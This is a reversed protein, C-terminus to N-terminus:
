RRKLDQIEFDPGADEAEPKFRTRAGGIRVGSLRFLAFQTKVPKGDKFYERKSLNQGTFSDGDVTITVTESITIRGVQNSKLFTATNGEAAKVDISASAGNEPNSIIVQDGVRELMWINNSVPYTEPVNTQLLNGTVSWQGYMAPPLYLTKSVTATLPARMTFVPKAKGSRVPKGSDSQAPTDPPSGMYPDQDLEQAWGIGSACCIMLGLVAAWALVRNSSFPSPRAIPIM